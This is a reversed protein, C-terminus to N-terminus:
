KLLEHLKTLIESPEFESESNHFKERLKNPFSDIEESPSLGHSQLVERLKGMKKRAIKLTESDQSIAAQMIEQLGKAVLQRFQQKAAETNTLVEEPTTELLAAILDAGSQTPKRESQTQEEAAQAAAITMFNSLAIKVQELNEKMLSYNDQTSNGENSTSYKVKEERELLAKKREKGWFYGSLEGNQKVVRHCPIVIAVPNKACAQAVARAATPRGLAQAIDKYSCTSGYPITQLHQWVQKQFPTGQIDLSLNIHTQKGEIYNLIAKQAPALLGAQSNITANPYKLQLNELLEADSSGLSVQCIGKTTQAVLIRGLFCDAVSYNITILETKLLSNTSM